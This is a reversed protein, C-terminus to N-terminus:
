INEKSNIKDFNLKLSKIKDSLDLAAQWRADNKVSEADRKNELLDISKERLQLSLNKIEENIFGAKLLKELSEAHLFSHVGVDFEEFLQYEIEEDEELVLKKTARQLTDVYLDNLEQLSITNM